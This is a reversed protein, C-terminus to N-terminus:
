KAPTLGLSPQIADVTYRSGAPTLHVVDLYFSDGSDTDARTLCGQSNCLAESLSVYSAGEAAAISRLVPEATTTRTDGAGQIPHAQGMGFRAYDLRPSPTKHLPDKRWLDFVIRSPTDTWAPAPGIVIINKVGISKLQRLSNALLSRDYEHWMAALLVVSPQLEKIHQFTWDNNFLCAQNGSQTFGPMPPCASSTFQALRFLDTTKALHRFGPYLAAASSDGWLVWLPQTGQDVCDPAYSSADQGLDMFCKRNRLAARYGDLDYETARQIIPPYRSSFGAQQVTVAGTAAMAFMLACLAFVKAKIRRTSRLPREVLRYTLYALIVSAFLLAARAGATLGDPSAIRAFTLLPWHWLYLPYSILGIAVMARNSLIRRNVWADAGSAIVLASGSVPVLAWAGPFPLKSTIRVAAYAILVLGFAAMLSRVRQMNQIGLRALTKRTSARASQGHASSIHSLIGGAMLEWGRSLPSYYTATPYTHVGFINVAFSAAGIVLIVPLPRIRLRWIGWLLLPWAIYFQEEIGLSWLHLLPKTESAHDFYGAEKWLVLNSIFTAGGVTHKGLQLLDEALMTHWGYGFCCLLVLILAPFIRRIRRSYFDAIGFSNQELTSTIVKTILYGSIVFFIDVGVFGGRLATPFAHFVLVTVVAIARLGDIHPQYAIHSKALPALNKTPMEM